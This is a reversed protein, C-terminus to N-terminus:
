KQVFIVTFYHFGRDNTMEGVGSINYRPDLMIDHHHPSNMFSNFAQQAAQGDDYNNNTIIEGAFKFPINQNRLMAIFDIGDPTTHSFYNRAVMDKSRSLALNRLSADLAAPQMGASQRASNILALLQSEKASLPAMASAVSAQPAAPAGGRSVPSVARSDGLSAAIDHHVQLYQRGLLGLEIGFGNAVKDPHYEMRAREFYQVQLGNETVVESIPYGFVRIDGNAKWYALFPAGLTHGTQAIYLAGQRAGAPGPRTGLVAGPALEIGFRSLLVEYDTGAYESHYEFRQREFYQVPRGNEQVVGSIPYGYIRLGGTKDFFNLFPGSVTYGTATYFRGGTQASAEPSLRPSILVASIFLGTVVASTIRARLSVRRFTTAFKM